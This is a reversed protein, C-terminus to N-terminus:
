PTRPPRRSAGRRTTRRASRSGCGRPVIDYRVRLESLNGIHNGLPRDPDQYGTSWADRDSALYNFRQMLLVEVEPVPRMVFRLGPSVLNVRAIARFLGTPGLDGRPAGYLADFRENNGDTPDRDGSTM